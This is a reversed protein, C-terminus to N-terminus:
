HRIIRVGNGWTRITVDLYGGIEDDYFSKIEEAKKDSIEVAFDFANQGRDDIAAQRAEDPCDLGIFKNVVDDDSDFGEVFYAKTM